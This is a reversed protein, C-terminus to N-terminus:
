AQSALMSNHVGVEILDQRYIAIRSVRLTGFSSGAIEAMSARSARDFRPRLGPDSGVNTRYIQDIQTDVVTADTSPFQHSDIQPRVSGPKMSQTGHSSLELRFLPGSRAVSGKM